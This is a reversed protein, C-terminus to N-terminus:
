RHFDGGGAGGGGYGDQTGPKYVPSLLTQIRPLYPAVSM